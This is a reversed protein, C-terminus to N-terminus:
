RRRINYMLKQNKSYQTGSVVASETYYGDCDGDWGWNMHYQKYPGYNVIETTTMGDEPKDYGAAEGAERAEEQTKGEGGWQASYGILWIYTDVETYTYQIFGDLVWAHGGGGLPKGGRIYLPCGNTLSSEVETEQFPGATAQLGYYALASYAKDFTSGSGSGTADYEMDVRNGVDVMLDSVYSSKREHSTDNSSLLMNNWRNSPDTMGSRTLTSKYYSYNNAWDHYLDWGSIIVNHYLGSPVGIKHNYYYLLQSLAVAVCGTPYHNSGSYVPLKNGWPRGQGWQTIVLPGLHQITDRYTTRGVFQKTWRFNSSLIQHDAARSDKEIGVNNAAIKEGEWLDTYENATKLSCDKRALLTAEKIGDLWDIVGPNDLRNVDFSGEPNEALIPPLHKDSSFITWGKDYNVVYVLPKNERQISEIKRIKRDREVRKVFARIDKENVAFTVAEETEPIMVAQEQLSPTENEVKITVPDDTLIKSCSVLCAVITITTLLKKM